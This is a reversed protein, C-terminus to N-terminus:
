IMWPACYIGMKMEKMAAMGEILVFDLGEERLMQLALLTTRDTPAGSGILLAAAKLACDEARWRSQVMRIYSWYDICDDDDDNNRCALVVRSLNPAIAATSSLTLTAMLDDARRTTGWYDNSEMVLETISTFKQLIRTTTDPDPLGRCYLKQLHCGSRDVFAELHSLVESATEDHVPALALGELSPAVLHDLIEPNSVYVGRLHSLRIPDNPAPWPELDFNVTIHAEVLNLALSLIHKQEEWPANLFYHTLQHVPLSFSVFRRENITGFDV